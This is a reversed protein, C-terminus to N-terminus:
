LNEYTQLVPLDVLVSVHVLSPFALSQGDTSLQFCDRFTELVQRVRWPRRVACDRPSGLIFLGAFHLQMEGLRGLM